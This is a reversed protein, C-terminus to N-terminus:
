MVYKCESQILLMVLLFNEVPSLKKKLARRLRSGLAKKAKQLETVAGFSQSRPQDRRDKKITKSIIQDRYRFWRRPNSLKKIVHDFLSCFAM